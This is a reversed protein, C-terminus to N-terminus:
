DLSGLMLRHKTRAYRHLLCSIALFFSCTNFLPFQHTFLIFHFSFIVLDLSREVNAYYILSLSQEVRHPQYQRRFNVQMLKFSMNIFIKFDLNWFICLLNYTINLLIFDRVTKQGSVIKIVSSLRLQREEQGSYWIM